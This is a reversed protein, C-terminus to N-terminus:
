LLSRYLSYMYLHAVLLGLSGMVFFVPEVLWPALIILPIIIVMAIILLSLPLAVLRLGVAFRRDLVLERASRLARLPTMDPLTSIYLAFVSSIIMYLSLLVLLLFIILAFLKEPTTVLTGNSVALSYLLNGLLAPVAQLGIVSLVLIFPVIPYLGKYFADRVTITHGALAQRATWIIALSTILTLFVQYAGAVDSARSGATSALQGFLAISVSLQNVGTGLIESLNQKLDVLDHSIGFGRVFIISLVIHVAIIGLFLRKNRRILGLVQRMLRLAGPLPARHVRVRKSLKFSHYNPAKRMRPSKPQAKQASQKGAATSKKTAM